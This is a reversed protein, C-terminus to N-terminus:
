LHPHPPESHNLFGGLAGLKKACSASGLGERTQAVGLGGWGRVGVSPAGRGGTRDEEPQVPRKPSCEDGSARVCNRNPVSQLCPTFVFLRGTTGRPSGPGCRLFPLFTPLWLGAPLPLNSLLTGSGEM